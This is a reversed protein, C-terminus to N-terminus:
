HNQADGCSITATAEQGVVGRGASVVGPNTDRYLWFLTNLDRQTIVNRLTLTPYMVDPESDSHGHIGLVHGLEHVVVRTQDANMGTVAYKVEATILENRGTNYTYRTRGVTGTAFESTPLALFSVQAEGPTSVREWHFFGGTADEWRRLAATVVADAESVFYVRLTRGQWIGHSEVVPSYNPAFSRSAADPLSARSDSLTPDVISPMVGGNAGGGGCGILLFSAAVLTASVINVHRRPASKVRLSVNHAIM